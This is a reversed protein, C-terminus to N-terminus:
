KLISTGEITKLGCIYKLTKDCCQKWDSENSEMLPAKLGIKLQRSNMLDFIEDFTKLFEVTAHVNEFHEVKLDHLVLLANAVSQSIVQVALSVKM